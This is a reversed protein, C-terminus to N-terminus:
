EGGCLHWFTTKSSETNRISVLTVSIRFSRTTGAGLNRKVVKLPWIRTGLNLSVVRFAVTSKHSKGQDGEKEVGRYIKWM